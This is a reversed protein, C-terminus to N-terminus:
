GPGPHPRAPPSGLARSLFPSCSIIRGRRENRSTPCSSFIVSCPSLIGDTKTGSNGYHSDNPLVVPSPLRHHFSASLLPLCRPITPSPLSSVIEETRTGSNKKNPLNLFLHYPVVSWGDKDEIGVQRAVKFFLLVPRCAATPGRGPVACVSQGTAIM